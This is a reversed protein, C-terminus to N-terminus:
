LGAHVQGQEPTQALTAPEQSCIVGMQCRMVM